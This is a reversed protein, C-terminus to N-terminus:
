TLSDDVAGDAFLRAVEDREPRSLVKLGDLTNQWVGVPGAEVTGICACAIEQSGLVTIIETVSDPRATM